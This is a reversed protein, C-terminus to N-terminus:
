DDNEGAALLAVAIEISTPLFFMGPALVAALRNSLNPYELIKFTFVKSSAKRIELKPHSPRTGTL